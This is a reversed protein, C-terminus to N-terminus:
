GSGGSRGAPLLVSAVPFLREGRANRLQQELAAQFNRIIADPLERHSCIPGAYGYVSTADLCSRGHTQGSWIGDLGRLLLPLAITYGRETYVFLRASGEDEEEALLHYQPLHYFDYPACQELIRLWADSQQVTLVDFSTM